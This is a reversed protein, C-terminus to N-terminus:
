GPHDSSARPVCALAAKGMRQIIYLTYLSKPRHRWVFRSYPVVGDHGSVLARFRVRRSQGRLRSQRSDGHECVGIAEPSLLIRVGGNRARLGLDLDGYLHTFVPDLGGLSVFARAPFMVFNGNFTDCATVDPGPSVHRFALAKIKSAVRMGSYTLSGSASVTAGVLATPTTENARRYESVFRNVGDVCPEVDDNFLLYSDFEGFSRSLQYAACMGGNWYLSGTGRGVHFELGLGAVREATGDLSADDVVFFTTRVGPSDSLIRFLTSLNSVTTQVRNFTAVLVAVNMTEM